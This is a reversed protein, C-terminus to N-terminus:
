SGAITLGEVRITPADVGTRFLLDSAPAMNLFMELINGAITIESVPFGLKGNEIWFGAAGQSYDGTVSNVGAGMLDTVYLGAPIDAILEEPTIAGAELYLNTPSPSPPSSTGRSAHGTSQLGLQRSSRLDLFWTTLVGGEIILRRTPALGEGDFPHSRLGRPRFPDDVVNIHPGFVQKGLHNKLFSTGRAIAAGSTAGALARLVLGSVRRDFVIPVKQTPVKRPNLRAVAKGGARLGIDAPDELDAAHVASSYDYDREMATGSGALVVASVSHRTVEHMGAFGNSAALAVRSRSWGADAGESNTVGPVDLAAQEAIKAREVLQEALPEVPDVTDLDPFRTALAAPDALGLHPDEPAARAMSVARDILEDLAKRSFDTTSVIAQRKGVLVRLGLDQGEARELREPEGLRQAVSVSVGETLVADAADAGRTQARGVLDALLSLPELEESM